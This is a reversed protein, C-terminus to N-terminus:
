GTQRDGQLKCLVGFLFRISVLRANPPWARRVEQSHHVPLLVGMFGTLANWTDADNIIILETRQSKMGNGLLWLFLLLLLLTISTMFAYVLHNRQSPRFCMVFLRGNTMSQRRSKMILYELHSLPVM